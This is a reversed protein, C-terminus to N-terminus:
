YVAVDKHRQHVTVPVCKPTVLQGDDGNLNYFKKQHLSQKCSCTCRSAHRKSSSPELAKPKFISSSWVGNQLSSLWELIYGRDPTNVVHYSRSCIITGPIAVDIEINRKCVSSLDTLEERYTKEWKSNRPKGDEGHICYMKTANIFGDSM